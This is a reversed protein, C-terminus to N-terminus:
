DFTSILYNRWKQYFIKNDVVERIRFKQAIRLFKPLLRLNTPNNEFHVEFGENIIDKIEQIEKTANYSANLM